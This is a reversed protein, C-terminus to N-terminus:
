SKPREGRRSGLVPKVLSPSSMDCVGGCCPRLSQASVPCHGGREGKRERERGREVVVVTIVVVM